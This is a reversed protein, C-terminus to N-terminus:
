LILSDILYRGNQKIISATIKYINNGTSYSIQYNKNDLRKFGVSKYWMCDFDFNDILLDYGDLSDRLNEIESKKFQKLANKSLNTIRLSSLQANIDKPMACYIKMYAKYFSELFSQESTQNIINTEKIKCSLLEDGYESVNWNPSIYTIKCNGDINQAKLHIRTLTSSDKKNWLYSVIYWDNKLKEINITEIADINADQAQIIPDADTANTVRQVKALLEETLYKKCLVKNKSSDHLVNTLYTIYFTKIEKQCAKVCITNFSLILIFTYMLRKM